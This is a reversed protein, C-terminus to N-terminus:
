ANDERFIDTVCSKGDTCGDKLVEIMDGVHIVPEVIQYPEDDDNVDVLALAM